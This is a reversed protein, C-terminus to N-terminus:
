NIFESSRVLIDAKLSRERERPFPTRPAITACCDRPKIRAAFKAPFLWARDM